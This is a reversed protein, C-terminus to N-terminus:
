QEESFCRVPVSSGPNEWDNQGLCSFGWEEASKGKQDVAWQDACAAYNLTQNSLTGDAMVRHNICTQYTAVLKKFQGLRASFSNLEVRSLKASFATDYDPFVPRSPLSGCMPSVLEVGKKMVDLPCAKYNHQAANQPRYGDNALVFSPMCTLMSLVTVFKLKNM